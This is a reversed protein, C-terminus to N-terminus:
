HGGCNCNCNCNCQQSQSQSQNQNKSGHKKGVEYAQYVLRAGHAVVAVTIPDVM